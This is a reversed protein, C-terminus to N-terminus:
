IHHHSQRQGSFEEVITWVFSAVDLDDAWHSSYWLGLGSICNRLWLPLVGRFELLLTHELLASSYDNLCVNNMRENM